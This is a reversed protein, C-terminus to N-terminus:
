HPRVLEGQRRKPPRIRSHQKRAFEAVLVEEVALARSFRWYHLLRDRTQLQTLVLANRDIPWAEFGVYWVRAYGAISRWATQVDAPTFILVLPHGDLAGTRVLVYAPTGQEFVFLDHPGSAERLLAAVGNLEATSHKPDTVHQVAVACILACAAATGAVRPAGFRLRELKLHALAVGTWACLGYAYLLYYRDVYLLKHAVLSYAVTLVAPVGIWPLLSHAQQRITAGLAGALWLWVIVVLVSGFAGAYPIQLSAQEPLTAIAIPVIGAFGPFAEGGRPLQALFTPLQPLWAVLAAAAGALMNALADRRVFAAYALQAVLM